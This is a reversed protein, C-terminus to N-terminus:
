RLYPFKVSSHEVNLLNLNRNTHMYAFWFLTHPVLDHTNEKLHLLRIVSELAFVCVVNCGALLLGFQCECFYVLQRLLFRGATRAVANFTLRQDFFVQGRAPHKLPIHLLGMEANFASLAIITGRSEIGALYKANWFLIRWEQRFLQAARWFQDQLDDRFLLLSCLPGTKM